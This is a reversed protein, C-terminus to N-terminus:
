TVSTGFKWNTLSLFPSSRLQTSIEAGTAPNMEAPFKIMHLYVQSNSREKQSFSRDVGFITKLNDRLLRVFGRGSQKRSKRM